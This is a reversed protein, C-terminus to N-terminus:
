LTEHNEHPSPTIKNIMGKKTEEKPYLSDLFTDFGLAKRTLDPVYPLMKEYAERLKQERAETETLKDFDNAATEDLRAYEKQLKEVENYATELESALRDAREKEAALERALKEAKAEWRNADERLEDSREKEAAYQQLWCITIDPQEAMLLERSWPNNGDTQKCLEMDKQWDRKGYASVFDPNYGKFYKDRSM